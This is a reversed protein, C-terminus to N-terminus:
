YVTIEDKIREYVNEPVIKKSLLEEVTQYPRNDIIVGARAEGIGWLADLESASASNINIKESVIVSSGAVEGVESEGQNPIYIKAGDALKQALNLNKEVWERDASASLGGARILLDNMRAEVPLEYLGPKEVAGELDVFLTEESREEAPLIEISSRNEQLLSTSLLGIGILILGVLALGIPIKNKEWDFTKPM